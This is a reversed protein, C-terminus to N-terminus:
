GCSTSRWTRRTRPHPEVVDEIVRVKRSNEVQPKRLLVQARHERSTGLRAIKGAQQGPAVGPDVAGLRGDAGEHQPEEVPSPPVPPQERVGPLRQEGIVLPPPALAVAVAVSQQLIAGRRDAVAQIAAGRERGPVLRAHVVRRHVVLRHQDGIAVGEVALVHPEVAQERQVSLHKRKAAASSPRSPSAWRSRARARARAVLIPSASHSGSRSTNAFRSHDPRNTALM